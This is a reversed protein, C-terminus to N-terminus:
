IKCKLHTTAGGPFALMMVKSNSKAYNISESVDKCMVASDPTAKQTSSIRM